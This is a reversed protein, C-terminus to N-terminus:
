AIDAIGAELRKFVALGILLALTAGLAGALTPGLQPAQGHLITRRLGDIVPALPNLGSFLVLATQGKVFSTTAYGVPTVFLGFQVIMPLLQQLDRLYVVFGAVLMVVGASFAVLILLLVPAWLTEVHPAYTYIGFMVVLMLTAALADAAALAISSLPFVERPCYLKNLLPINQTLSTGGRSFASSFFSWPVLGVAAFLPYPVGGSSNHTVKTFVLNFAGLLLVPTLLAWGLGLVAQKYRVRLDREALTLILERYQWLERLSSVLGVRRRFWIEPRPEDPLPPRGRSTAPETQTVPPISDVM